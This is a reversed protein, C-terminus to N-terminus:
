LICSTKINRTFSTPNLHSPILQPLYVDRRDGFGLQRCINNGWSYVQGTEAVM